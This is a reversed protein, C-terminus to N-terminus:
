GKHNYAISVWVLYFLFFIIPRELPCSLISLFAPSGFSQAAPNLALTMGYSFSTGIAGGTCGKFTVVNCVCLHWQEHCFCLNISVFRGELRVLPGVSTRLWTCRALSGPPPLPLTDSGRQSQFPLPPSLKWLSEGLPLNVWFVFCPILILCCFVHCSDM